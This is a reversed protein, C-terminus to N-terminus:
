SSAGAQEYPWIAFGLVADRVDGRGMVVADVRTWSSPSGSTGARPLDPTRTLWDLGGDRRRHRRGSTAIDVICSGVQTNACGQQAARLAARRGHLSTGRSILRTSQREQRCRVALAGASSRRRGSPCAPAPLCRTEGGGPRTLRLELIGCGDNRVRGTRVRCRLDRGRLDDGDDCLLRRITSRRRGGSSARDGLSAPRLDAM